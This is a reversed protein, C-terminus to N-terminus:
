DSNKEELNVDFFTARGNGVINYHMHVPQIYLCCLIYPSSTHVYTNPPHAPPVLLRCNAFFLFPTGCCALRYMVQIAM